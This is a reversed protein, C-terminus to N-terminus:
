RGLAAKPVALSLLGVYDGSEEPRFDDRVHVSVGPSLVGVILSGDKGVRTYRPLINVGTQKNVDLAIVLADAPTQPHTFVVGEIPENTTKLIPLQDTFPEGYTKDLVAHDLNVAVEVGRMASVTKAEEAKRGYLHIKMGTQEELETLTEGHLDVYVIRGRKELEKRAKSSFRVIDGTKEKLPIDKGRRKLQAAALNAFMADEEGGTSKLTEIFNRFAM